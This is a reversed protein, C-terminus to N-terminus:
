PRQFLTRRRLLAFNFGSLCGFASGLLLRCDKSFGTSIARLLLILYEAPLQLFLRRLNGAHRYRGFQLILAAV